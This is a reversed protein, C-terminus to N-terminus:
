FILKPPRPEAVSSTVVKPSSARSASLGQANASPAGGGPGSSQLAGSFVGAATKKPVNNAQPSATRTSAAPPLPPSVPVPETSFPPLVAVSAISPAATGPSSPVAIPSSAVPVPAAARLEIATAGVTSVSAQPRRLRGLVLGLPVAVAIGVLVAGMLWRRVARKDAIFPQVVPQIAQEPLSFDPAPRGVMAAAMSKGTPTRRVRFPMASPRGPARGAEATGPSPALRPASRGQTRAPSVSPPPGGAPMPETDMPTSPPQARQAKSTVLAFPTSNPPASPPRSGAGIARASDKRAPVARMTMAQAPLEVELRELAGRIANTFESMVPFRQQAQKAIARWVLRDVYDPVGRVIAKLRPPLKSIQIAILVQPTPEEVGIMCPCIGAIMEYLIIGLQFIDSAFTVGHGQAQEPSMYPATGQILDKQTTQYGGELFKAIGFDLVKVHNEALLFINDPKLDRHIVNMAHAAELAEAVQLAIMLAEVITLPGLTRLMERLTMGELKEMVIYAMGNLEGGDMVRVVNPHNLRYLVQAEGRARNFLQQGRNPPNPILKIAVEEALFTNVCHYVFAHGGKGLLGLVEYKDLIRDGAGFPGTQPTSPTV